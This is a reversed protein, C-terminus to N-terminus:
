NGLASPDFCVGDHSGSAAIYSPYDANRKVAHVSGDAYCFQVVGTHHSGFTYWQAPDPLGWATPMMGIGMWCLSFDRPGQSTGGLTEGFLLTNSTGDGGTLQTLSNQRQPLFIGEWFDFDPIGVEGILGMVGAYNTRGLTTGTAQDFAFYELTATNKDALFTCLIAIVGQTSAEPTDSPCLFTKVPIQAANWTGDVNWWNPGPATPDTSIAMQKFLNDQEIYPLLLALVGIHQYEWFRASSFPNTGSPAGLEGPPLRDFNSHYNHVATGLQKLNNACSVRNATERVKQVAPVLLGILIAIIAIVVLLEILTFGLRSRPPKM